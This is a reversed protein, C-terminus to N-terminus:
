SDAGLYGQAAARAGVEPDAVPMLQFTEIAEKYQEGARYLVALRELLAVRGAREERTYSKKETSDVLLADRAPGRTGRGIWAVVRSLLVHPWSFAM